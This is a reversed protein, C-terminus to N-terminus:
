SDSEPTAEPLIAEVTLDMALYQGPDRTRLTRLSLAVLRLDPREHDLAYLIQRLVADDGTLQIRLPLRTLGDVERGEGTSTQSPKGGAREALARLETQLRAAALGPEGAPQRAPHAGESGRLRDLDRALPEIDDTRREALAITALLDQARERAGAEARFGPWLVVAYVLALGALLIALALLRDLLLGPTM